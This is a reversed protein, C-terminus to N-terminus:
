NSPKYIFYLNILAVATAILAEQESTTWHAYTAGATFGVVGVKTSTQEMSAKGSEIKSLIFPEIIKALLAKM